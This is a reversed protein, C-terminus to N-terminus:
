NCSFTLKAREKTVNESVDKPSDHDDILDPSVREDSYVRVIICGVCMAFFFLILIIGGATLDGYNINWNHWDILSKEDM